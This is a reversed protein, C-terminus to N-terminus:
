PNMARHLVAPYTDGTATGAGTMRTGYTVSDGVSTVRDGPMAVSQLAGFVEDGLFANGDVTLHIGDEANGNAPCQLLCDATNATADAFTTGPSETLFRGRWDILTAGCPTAGVTVDPTTGNLPTAASGSFDDQFLVAASALNWSTFLVLPVLVSPLHHRIAIMKM